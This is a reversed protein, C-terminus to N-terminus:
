NNIDVTTSCKDWCHPITNTIPCYNCRMPTHKWYQNLCSQHLKHGDACILCDIATTITEGCISCEANPATLVETEMEKIEAPTYFDRAREELTMGYNHLDQHYRETSTLFGYKCFRKSPKISM